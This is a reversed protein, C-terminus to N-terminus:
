VAEFIRGRDRAGHLVHVIEIGDAVERYYVVFPFGRVLWTRTGALAAHETRILRGKLPHELLGRLTAKLAIYFREAVEAGARETYYAVQEDIERDAHELIDCRRRM